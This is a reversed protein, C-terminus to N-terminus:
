QRLYRSKEGGENYSFSKYDSSFTARKVGDPTDLVAVKGEMRYPSSSHLKGGVLMDVKDDGFRFQPMQAAMMQVMQPPLGQGALDPGYTGQWPEGALAPSAVSMALLLGALSALWATPRIPNLTRTLSM